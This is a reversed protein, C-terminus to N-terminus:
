CESFRGTIKKVGKEGCFCGVFGRGVSGAHHLLYELAHSAFRPNKLM